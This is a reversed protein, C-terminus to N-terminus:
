AVLRRQKSRAPVTEALGAEALLDLTLWGARTLRYYNTIPEAMEGHQKGVFNPSHKHEVLGRMGLGRAPGVWNNRGVLERRGHAIAELVAIHTHGLTLVFAQGTAYRRLAPNPVAENDNTM